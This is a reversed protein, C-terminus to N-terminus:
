SLCSRAAHRRHEEVTELQASARTILADLREPDIGANAERVSIWLAQKGTIGVVLTEFDMLETSGSGAFPSGSKM